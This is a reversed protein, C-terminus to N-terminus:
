ELELTMTRSGGTCLLYYLRRGDETDRDLHLNLTEEKSASAHDKFSYFDQKTFTARTLEIQGRVLRPGTPKSDLFEKVTMFKGSSRRYGRQYGAMFDDALPKAVLFMVGLPLPNLITGLVVVLAALVAEKSSAQM